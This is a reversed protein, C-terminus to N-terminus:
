LKAPHRRHRRWARRLEKTPKGDAGYGSFFVIKRMAPDSLGQWVATGVALIESVTLPEPKSWTGDQYQKQM